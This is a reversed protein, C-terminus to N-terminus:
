ESGRTRTVVLGGGTQRAHIWACRLCNVEGPGTEKLVMEFGHWPRVPVNCLPTGVVSDHVKL